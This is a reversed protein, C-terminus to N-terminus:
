AKQNILNMVPELADYQYDLTWDPSVVDENWGVKHVNHQKQKIQGAENYRLVYKNNKVGSDYINGAEISPYFNAFVSLQGMSNLDASHGIHTNKYRTSTASPFYNLQIDGVQTIRGDGEVWRDGLLYRYSYDENHSQTATQITRRILRGLDDYSYILSVDMLGSLKVQTLRSGDYSPEVTEEPSQLRELRGLRFKQGVKAPLKLSKFNLKNM